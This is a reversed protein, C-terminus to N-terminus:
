AEGSRGRTLLLVAFVAGGVTIAADAVNFVPWVRFDLFDVVTGYLLRDLLNGLAGGLLLGLAVGLWPDGRAATRGYAIILGVVALSVLIFFPTQHQLLGFAAGANRVYTVHFVHPIVRLSEGPTMHMSVYRKSLYDLAFVAAAVAAILV